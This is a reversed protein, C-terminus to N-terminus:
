EHAQAQEDALAARNAADMEAREAPTLSALARRGAADSCEDCQSLGHLIERGCGACTSGMGMTRGRSDREPAM